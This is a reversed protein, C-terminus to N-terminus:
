IMCIQYDDRGDRGDRRRHCGSRRLERARIPRQIVLCERDAGFIQSNIGRSEEEEEDVKRKAEKNDMTEKPSRRALHRANGTGQVEQRAGAPRRQQARAGDVGDVMDEGAVLQSGTAQGSGELTGLGVNVNTGNTVDVVALHPNLATDIRHWPTDLRYIEDLGGQSGGDGLVLRGLAQGVEEVVGGNVLSRLLALTTDGDGSGVDLELGLAAVIGVDVARTVGIVNLVHNSTGGVHITGDDDNSSGVTLHITSGQDWGTLFQVSM